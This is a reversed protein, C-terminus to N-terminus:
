PQPAPKVVLILLVVGALGIADDDPRRDHRM